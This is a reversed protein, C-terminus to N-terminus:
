AVNRKLERIEQANKLNLTEMFGLRADISETTEKVERLEARILPIDAVYERIAQLEGMLAEGLVEKRMDDDM